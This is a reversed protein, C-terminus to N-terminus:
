PRELTSFYLLYNQCLPPLVLTQASIKCSIKIYKYWINEVPAPTIDIDNLSWLCHPLLLFYTYSSKDSSCAASGSYCLTWDTAALFRPCLCSLTQKGSQRFTYAVTFILLAPRLNTHCIPWRSKSWLSLEEVLARSSLQRMYVLCIHVSNRIGTVVSAAQM